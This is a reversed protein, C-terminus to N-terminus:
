LGLDKKLKDFEEDVKIERMRRRDEDQNSYSSKRRHPPISKLEEINRQRRGPSSSKGTESYNSWVNEKRDAGSNSNDRSSPSSNRSSGDRTSSRNRRSRGRGRSSSGFGQNMWSDEDSNTSDQREAAKSSPTTSPAETRSYTTSERKIEEWTPQERTYSSGSNRSTMLEQYRTQLLLLRKQAKKRYDVAVNQQAKLEAMSEDLKMKDLYKTSTKLEGELMTIENAIASLKANLQNVVLETDDIENRIESKSGSTLLIRLEVDDGGAGGSFGEVNGELFEIFDKFLGSTGGATGAAATTFLDSFIKGFSDGDTDYDVEEKPMFDRWDAKTDSKSSYTQGSRRHPPTWKDSPSSSSSADTKRGSQYTTDDKLKGSLTSYAWNIKAFRDSAKKKEEPTSDHALVDTM